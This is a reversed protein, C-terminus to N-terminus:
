AIESLIARMESELAKPDGDAPFAALAYGLGAKPLGDFMFDTGLAKGQPVLEFLKGRRSKLVDVLVEAAPYDPSEFGPMRLAVVQLGYPLDSDLTLSRPQVPRLRMQPRPPLKKQPIREFLARVKALTADLNVDGVIVLTANNPAYWRDHFRKLDAASTKLFSEKTGLADHAYTTGAFLAERLKTSLMYTPSSLDQAVEQTIAGREQKWDRQSATLGRMRIAEINLAVDLDAAPVSYLYQTVTQQTDANFDGGMLSGIDALQAATLGRSGRFMMHELAHATGPFGPPTEDAGVHYNMVTSVAAALTNRVVIVRLGNKLTARAVGEVGAAPVSTAIGCLPAFLLALSFIWARAARRSNGAPHEM